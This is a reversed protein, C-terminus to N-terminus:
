YSIYQNDSTEFANPLNDWVEDIIDSVDDISSVRSSFGGTDFLWQPLEDFYENAFAKMIIKSVLQVFTSDEPKVQAGKKEIDGEDQNRLIVLSDWWLTILRDVEEENKDSLGEKVKEILEVSYAELIFSRLCDVAFSYDDLNNAIREDSEVNNECVKLDKSEKKSVKKKDAELASALTLENECLYSDDSGAIQVKIGFESEIKEELTGVKMSKRVSLDGSGKKKRIQSITQGEDAFSRGDYVRLTLGFEEQFRKKLTAVKIQGTISFAM